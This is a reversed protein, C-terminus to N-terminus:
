LKATFAGARFPPADPKEIFVEEGELRTNCDTMVTMGPSGLSEPRSGSDLYSDPFQFM